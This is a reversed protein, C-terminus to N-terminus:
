AARPGPVAHLSAGAGSRGGLYENGPRGAPGTYHLWRGGKTIGVPLPVYKQRDLRELVARASQLSIEYETSCGGFLVAIVHKKM